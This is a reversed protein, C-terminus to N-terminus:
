TLTGIFGEHGVLNDRLTISDSAHLCGAGIEAFDAHYFPFRGHLAEGGVSGFSDVVIRVHDTGAFATSFKTLEFVM